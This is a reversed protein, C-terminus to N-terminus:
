AAGDTGDPVILIKADQRLAARALADPGHGLQYRASIVPRLDVRGAAHLAIVPDFGGVHGITGHASAANLQYAFTRTPVAHGEAGLYVVKAGVALSSEIEPLVARGAGSAEVAMDAGAGRSHELVQEAPRIGAARLETVDLAVDAGVALALDCRARETDFALITAAGACRALAVAALGIPGCGFVTVVSGPLFGGARLFMGVYAVGAPECLAGVEFVQQADLREQLSSLPRANAERTVLFEAMGGDLSFGRDHADLCHNFLGARCARCRGCYQLTEVAVPDGPRLSRVASGVEVVEGAVEHGPVLPLRMRYPLLVYGDDDTEYMHVDSGCIGVARSRVIVDDPAAIVPDPRSGVSWRPRRWVQTGDRAWRERLEDDGLVASARPEWEAEVVMARM